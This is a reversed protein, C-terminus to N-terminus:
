GMSDVFKPYNGKVPKMSNLYRKGMGVQVSEKSLGSRVSKLAQMHNDLIAQIKAAQEKANAVLTYVEDRLQKELRVQCDEWQEKLELVHRNMQKIAVLRDRNRLVSDVACRTEMGGQLNLEGSLEEAM